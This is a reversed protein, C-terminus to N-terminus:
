NENLVIGAQIRQEIEDFKDQFKEQLMLYSFLYQFMDYFANHFSALENENLYNSEFSFYKDFFGQYNKLISDVDKAILELWEVCLEIVMECLKKKDTETELLVQFYLDDINLKRETILEFLFFIFWKEEVKMERFLPINNGYEKQQRFLSEKDVINNGFFLFIIDQKEEDWLYSENIFWMSKYFESFFLVNEWIEIPERRELIDFIEGVKQLITENLFVKELIYNEGENDYLESKQDMNQFIFFLNKLSNYCM